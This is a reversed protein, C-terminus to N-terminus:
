KTGTPVRRKIQEVWNLEVTIPQEAQNVQKVM